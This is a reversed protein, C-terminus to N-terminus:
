QKRLQAAVRAKLETVAFPKEIYDAAGLNMCKALNEPDHWVTVFIVPIYRTEESIKLDTLIDFNFIGPPSIDIIILDPREKAVCESTIDILDTFRIEYDPQFLSLYVSRMMVEESDNIILIKSGQKAHNFLYDITVNFFDAIPIIYEMDPYGNESEWKSVAQNTVGLAEALQEQTVGDRKRM